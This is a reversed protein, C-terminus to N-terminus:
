QQKETIITKVRAIDKRLEALRAPNELRRIGHQFKLKFFDERIDREKNKLDELSLERLESTKM